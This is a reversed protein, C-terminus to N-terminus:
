PLTRLARPWRARDRRGRPFAPEHQELADRKERLVQERHRAWTEEIAKLIDRRDAISDLDVNMIQEGRENAVGDIAEAHAEPVALEEEVAEKTEEPDPIALDFAM